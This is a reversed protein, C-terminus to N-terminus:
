TTNPPGGNLPGNRISKRRKYLLISSILSLVLGIQLYWGEYALMIMFEWFNVPGSNPSNSTPYDFLYPIFGFVLSIAGLIALLIAFKNM